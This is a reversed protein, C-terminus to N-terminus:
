YTGISTIEEISLDKGLLMPLYTVLDKTNEEILGRDKNKYTKFPRKIISFTQFDENDCHVYFDVSTSGGMYPSMASFSRHGFIWPIFEGKGHNGRIISIIGVYRPRPKGFYQCCEFRSKCLFIGHEKHYHVKAGFHYRCDTLFSIHYSQGEVGRFKSLVIESPLKRPQQPVVPTEENLKDLSEEGGILLQYRSMVERSM